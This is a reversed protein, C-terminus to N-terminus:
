LEGGNMTTALIERMRNTVGKAQMLKNVIVNFGAKGVGNEAQRLVKEAFEDLMQSNRTADEIHERSLVESAPRHPIEVWKPKFSLRHNVVWFGPKHIFSYEEATKRIMPGSNVISRAGKRYCFKRHVDGCIILDYDRHMRLFTEANELSQGPYLDNTGITAHILLLNKATPDIPKPAEQGFSAGYCHIGNVARKEPGLQVVRGSLVLAGLMTAGKTEESYMYTDHQGFVAFVKVEPYNNLFDLFAALVYWSRPNDFLDGAVFISCNHRSAYSFVFHLKEYQVIPLDDKRCLPNQTMTHIDSIAIIKWKRM